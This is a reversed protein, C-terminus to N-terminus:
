LSAAQSFGIPGPDAAPKVEIEHVHAMSPGQWCREVLEDIAAPPGAVLAEVTGDSRNRVWGDLGRAQAQDVTFGRYWVGQVRGYIKLSVAKRETGDDTM